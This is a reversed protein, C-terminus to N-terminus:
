DRQARVRSTRNRTSSSAFEPVSAVAQRQRLKDLSLQQRESVRTTGCSGFALQLERLVDEKNQPYIFAAFSMANMLDVYYEQNPQRDATASAKCELVAWKDGWLILRDPIGQTLNADLKQIICGPFMVRLERILSQEFPTELRGM